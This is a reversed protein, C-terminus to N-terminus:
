KEPEALWINGKGSQLPIYLNQGALGYGVSSGGAFRLDEHLHLVGIPEGQPMKNRDVRRAYLCEPHVGDSFYYYLLSGDPSWFPKAHYEDTTIKIWLSQPAPLPGDVPALYVPQSSVGQVLKFAIWKGDPSIRGDHIAYKPHSVLPTRKDTAVEMAEIHQPQGVGVIVSRSDPTWNLITFNLLPGCKECLQREPGLPLPWLYGRDGEGEARLFAVKSGDPSLIGRRERAPTAVLPVEAGTTLDKMWVDLTGLRDSAFVMKSGDESLTPFITQAGDHIFQAPPSLIKGQNADITTRYLSTGFLATSYPIAGSNSPSGAQEFSGATVRWPRGELKGEESMRVAWINRTGGHIARFIVTHDRSWAMPVADSIGIQRLIKETQVEIARPGDLPVVYWSLKASNTQTRNGAMLLCGGGSSWVPWWFMALGTKVERHAGGALPALYLHYLDRNGSNFTTTYAVWKGDPSFSGTAAGNVIQRETGGLAPILYLGDNRLFLIQSGDPSFEPNFEDANHRTLRIADGRGEVQQVWIDLNHDGGRTSAYAVLRGDPSLAPDVDLADGRTIQRL